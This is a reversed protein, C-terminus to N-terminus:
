QWSYSAFAWDLLAASDAYIDNSKLAAVYVRHGDRTASGVITRGAAPTYGIKVGDADRYRWLLQNLNRLDFGGARSTEYTRAAALSQFVSNRMGERALMAMDYATSLHGAADLGHPNAFHTGTLGLSRVKENMLDAFGERTGAVHRALALAADNGSPLMLGYLLDEVTLVDGPHVGMVTSGPMRRSDLEVTVTEALRAHDLVVLATAIKTLSAPPTSTNADRAWLIQGSDGDIVVAHTASVWGPSIERVKRPGALDVRGVEAQTPVHLIQGVLIRASSDLGNVRVLEDRPVGLAASISAVSDGARVRYTGQRGIPVARFDPSPLAADRPQTSPVLADADIWGYGSRRSTIEVPLYVFWRDGRPEGLVMLDAHAAASVSSDVGDSSTYLSAQRTTRAWQPPPGSIGVDDLDIWGEVSGGELAPLQVRLRGGEAGVVNLFGWQGVGAVLEGEVPSSWLRSGRIAQVWMPLAAPAPEGDVSQRAPSAVAQAVASLVLDGGALLERGEALSAWGEKREADEISRGLLHVAVVAFCSVFALILYLLEGRGFGTRSARPRGWGVDAAGPTGGEPRSSSVLARARASRNSSIRVM